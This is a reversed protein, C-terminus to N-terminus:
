LSFLDLSSLGWGLLCWRVVVPFVSLSLQSFWFLCNVWFILSPFLSSFWTVEDQLECSTKNESGEQNEESWWLRWESSCGPAACGGAWVVWTWPPKQRRVWRGARAERGEAKSGNDLDLLCLQRTRASSTLIILFMLERREPKQPNNLTEEAAKAFDFHSNLITQAQKSVKPM